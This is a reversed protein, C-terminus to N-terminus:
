WIECSHESVNEVEIIQSTVSLVQVDVDLKICKVREARARRCAIVLAGGM